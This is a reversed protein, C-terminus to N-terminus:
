KSKMSALLVPQLSTRIVHLVASKRSLERLTAMKLSFFIGRFVSGVSIKTPIEDTERFPFRESKRETGNRQLYFFSPIGNRVMEYLIFVGRVKTIVTQVMGRLIFISPIGNQVMECFLFVSPENQVSPHCLFFVNKRPIGNRESCRFPSKRSVRPIGRFTCM